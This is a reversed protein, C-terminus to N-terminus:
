ISIILDESVSSRLNPKLCDKREDDPFEELRGNRRFEFSISELTKKLVISQIYAEIRDSIEFKRRYIDHYNTVVGDWTLVYPIIVASYRYIQSLENALIDCKRLKETEVQQLNEASTIGVEVILIEKKRKDIVVLDPRNHKIKIDTKVFTDVRIEVYKNSVIEQVLHNRLKKNSRVGYKNCLLLHICKLLENHRRTYDTGLMKKCRSALHDVTKSAEGCHPCKKFEGLFM